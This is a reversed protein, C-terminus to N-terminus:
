QERLWRMVATPERGDRDVFGPHELCAVLRQRLAPDANAMLNSAQLRRLLTKFPESQRRSLYECWALMDEVVAVGAVPRGALM